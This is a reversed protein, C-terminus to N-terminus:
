VAAVSTYPPYARPSRFTVGIGAGFDVVSQSTSTAVEWDFTVQRGDRIAHLLVARLLEQLDAPWAAFHARELANRVIRQDQARADLADGRELYQTPLREPRQFLANLRLLTPSLSNYPM